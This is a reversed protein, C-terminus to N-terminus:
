ELHYCRTNVTTIVKPPVNGSNQATIVETYTGGAFDGNFTGTMTLGNRYGVWVPPHDWYKAYGADYPEIRDVV